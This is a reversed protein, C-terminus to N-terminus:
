FASYPLVEKIRMMIRVKSRYAGADVFIRPPECLLVEGTIRKPKNYVRQRLYARVAEKVGDKISGIKAEIGLLANDTGRASAAPISSSQWLTLWPKQYSAIDYRIRAILKEEERRTDMVSLREDGWPIQAIPELTFIEKVERATDSPTYEFAFGFIMGSFVFQAERLIHKVAIDRPVPFEEDDTKVMPELDCWFEAVITDDDPGIGFLPGATLLLLSAFLIFSSQVPFLHRM